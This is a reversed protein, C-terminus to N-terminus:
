EEGPIIKSPPKVYLSSRPEPLFISMVGALSIVVIAARLLGEFGWLEIIWGWLPSALLPLTIAVQLGATAVAHEQAPVLELAYNVALRPTLTTFALTLFTFWIGSEVWSRPLHLMALCWAPTMASCFVLLAFTLRNGFRDALWGVLVSFVGVSASQAIVWLYQQDASIHLRERAFAQYHPVLALSFSYVMSVLWLGRLGPRTRFSRIFPEWFNITTVEHRTGNKGPERLLLCLVGSLIFLCASTSFVIDYHPSDGSLWSRLVLFGVLVAPITGWFTSYSMLRGRYDPRILKGQVTNFAVQYLGYIGSFLFYVALFTVAASRRGIEGYGLALVAMLALPLALLGCFTVLTFRKTPVHDMLRALFLPFVGQGARNLIPLFGRYIGAGPGALFDLFGPLVVSETKFTWGVRFLIQHFILLWLNARHSAPDPGCEMGPRSDRQQCGTRSADLPPIDQM